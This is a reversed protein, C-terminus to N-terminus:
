DFEYGHIWKYPLFYWTFYIRWYHKHGDILPGNPYDHGGVQYNENRVDLTGWILMGVSYISFLTATFRASANGLRRLCFLPVGIGLSAAFVPLYFHTLTHLDLKFGWGFKWVTLVGFYAWFCISPIFVAVGLWWIHAPRLQM